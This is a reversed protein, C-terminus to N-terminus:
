RLVVRFRRRGYTASDAKDVYFAYNGVRLDLSDKRASDQLWVHIGAPIKHLYSIGLLYVGTRKANVNLRIAAGPSYPLVQIACAVSDTTFSALSAVGNGTFYMADQSSAFVGTSTHNFIFMTEDIDASDKRLRIKLSASDPITDEVRPAVAMKAPPAAAPAIAKQKKCSLLSIILILFLIYTKM